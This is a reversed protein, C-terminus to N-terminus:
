KLNMLTNYQEETLSLAAKFADKHTSFLPDSTRIDAADDWDTRAHPFADLMSDFASEKGWERLKRRIALKSLTYVPAPVPTKNWKSEVNDWRLIIGKSLQDERSTVGNDIWLPIQKATQFTQVQEAVTNTVQVATVNEPLHLPETDTIRNINGRNNIILYKM